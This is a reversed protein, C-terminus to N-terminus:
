DPLTIVVAAREAAGKRTVFSRVAYLGAMLTVVVGYKQKIATEVPEADAGTVLTATAEIVPQDAKVRGRADSAQLTARSSNRLRKAKGSTAETTFGARGEDLPAIWVPSSVADGSKRFTTFLVYKQDAISMPADYRRPRGAPGPRLQM